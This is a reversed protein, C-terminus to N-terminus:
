LYEPAAAQRLLTSANAEHELSEMISKDYQTDTAHSHSGSTIDEAEQILSKFQHPLHTVLLETDTDSLDRLRLSLGQLPPLHYLLHETTFISILTQHRQYFDKNNESKSM